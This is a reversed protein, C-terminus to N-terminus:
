APGSRHDRASSSGKTESVSDSALIRHLLCVHHTVAYFPDAVAQKQFCSSPGDTVLPARLGSQGSDLLQGIGLHGGSGM